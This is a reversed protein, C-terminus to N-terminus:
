EVEGEVVHQLHGAFELDFFFKVVAGEVEVEVRRGGAVVPGDAVVWSQSVLGFPLDFQLFDVPKESNSLAVIYCYFDKLFFLQVKCVVLQESAVPLLRVSDEIKEFALDLICNWHLFLFVDVLMVPSLDVRSALLQVGVYGPSFQVELELFIDASFILVFNKILGDEVLLEFKGALDQLATEELLQPVDEFVGGVVASGVAVELEEVGHLSGLQAVQHQLLSEFDIVEMFVEVDIHHGEVLIELLNPVLIVYELYAPPQIAGRHHLPPVHEPQKRVDPGYSIVIPVHYGVLYHYFYGQNAVEEADAHEVPHKEQELLEISSVDGEVAGEALCGDEGDAEVDENEHNLCKLVVEDLGEGVFPM